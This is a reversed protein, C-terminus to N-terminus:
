QARTVGLVEPKTIYFPGLFSRMFIRTIYALRNGCWLLTLVVVTTTTMTRVGCM